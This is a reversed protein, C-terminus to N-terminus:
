NSVLYIQLYDGEAHLTAHDCDQPGNNQRGWVMGRKRCPLPHKPIRLDYMIVNQVWLLNVRLAIEMESHTFTQPWGRKAEKGPMHDWDVELSGVGKGKWNVCARHGWSDGKSWIVIGWRSPFKVRPSIQSLDVSTEKDELDPVIEVCHWHLTSAGLSLFRSAVHTFANQIQDTHFSFSRFVEWSAM